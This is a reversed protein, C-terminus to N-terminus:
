NGASASLAFCIGANVADVVASTTITAGSLADIQNDAAAGSKTYEFKEVVKDAFQNKFGSESALAGLGATENNVLVEVGKTEGELSYGLSITIAGKYGNQTTISMVYGITNGSSDLALYADDIAIGTYGNETLVTTAAESALAALNEDSGFEAAEAYVVKYAETKKELLRQEIIPATLEHVFGLSFGAIVTIIVLVMADKLITSKKQQNETKGM